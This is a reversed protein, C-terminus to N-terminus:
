IIIFTRRDTQGDDTQRERWRDTLGDAQRDSKQLWHTDIRFNSIIKETHRDTLAVSSISTSM